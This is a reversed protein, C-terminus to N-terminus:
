FRNSPINISNDNENKNSNSCKSQNEMLNENSKNELIIFFYHYLLSIQKIFSFFTEMLFSQYEM